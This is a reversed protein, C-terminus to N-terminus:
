LPCLSQEHLWRQSHFICYGQWFRTNGKPPPMDNKVHKKASAPISTESAQVRLDIFDLLDQYDPVDAKTQSHKQWEFMTDADLKLEIISTVFSNSPGYEMARLARLHQQLTDYLRRLEKGSSDKLSPANVIKQVHARHILRPRDYRSRLCDIAEHYNNGSQSLGEIASKASGSTVAHRLYALKEADSLTRRDHVSVSFQEWFQRWNLIDGDFTPVDLKPLKVGKGDVASGTSLLKKVKHSCEFQLRELKALLIILDDKEELDLAILDECVATLEKKHDFLQERYQELLHIDAHDEPLAALAEETSNLNRQLRLLKRSSTKRNGSTVPGSSKAILQQLRISLATVDDDHSDM